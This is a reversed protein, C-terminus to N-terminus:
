GARIFKQFAHCTLPAFHDIAGSAKVVEGVYFDGRSDAWIGHPVIFNGPLLPDYGGIQTQISGDLDCITVRAIPAHGVPPHRSWRYHPVEPSPLNWGLEAIYLNEQEDIFLDDPRNVWDWSELFDGDSTFIQIRSNERDAVFVRGGRDVAISHPLNFQGPGSGPEGWSALLEGDPSFRHVRANGYGDSVFMEGSPAVAVNTVMNFPGGARRVPSQGIRFGTDAPRNAEGLTMLLEGEPTFKRVTHDFNDACWIHDHRDIFIGHANTFIDEGWADLFRGDKDFVIMPHAGRNFVYVRDRSDVAVGAVEVFSWGDPLQEWGELVEYELRHPGIAM